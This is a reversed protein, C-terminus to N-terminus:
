SSDEYSREVLFIIICKNNDKQEEEQEVITRVVGKLWFSSLVHMVM